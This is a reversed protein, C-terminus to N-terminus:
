RDISLASVQELCQRVKNCIEFYEKTKRYDLAGQYPNDVVHALLAPRTSMVFIRTGLFVAEEISHTVIVQTHCRKKWLALLENQLVERRLEDVASLPEDLLFLDPETALARALALRQRMGGSLEGPYKKENGGLGVQELVRLTREHAQARPMRQIRLPIMVNKLVTKWEFLGLDQQIFSLKGKNPHLSWGAISIKGETPALLGAILKLLSSKGCGSPGIIVVSEGKFIDLNLQKLAVTKEKGLKYVFSVDQFSIHPEQTEM